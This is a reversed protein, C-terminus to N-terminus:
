RTAKTRRPTQKEPASLLWANAKNEGQTLGLSKWTRARLSLPRKKRSVPDPEPGSSGSEVVQAQRHRRSRPAEQLTKYSKQKISSLLKARSSSAKAQKRDDEDEDDEYEEDDGSNEGRHVQSFTKQQWATFESVADKLCAAFDRQAVAVRSSVEATAEKLRAYQSEINSLEVLIESAIIEQVATTRGLFEACVVEQKPKRQKQFTLFHPMATFNFAKTAVLKHYIYLVDHHGSDLSRKLFTRVSAWDRLALRIQVPPSSLQTHFLGFMLYLGGVRIQYSYPPLFYKVATALAVRGFSRLEGMRCIGLFVDSFAMERWVASFDAYRVSDRLQFRALLEEVDGTLPAYFFDAFFPQVLPM